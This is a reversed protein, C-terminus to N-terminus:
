HELLDLNGMENPNYALYLDIIVENTDKIQSRIEGMFDISNLDKDKWKM